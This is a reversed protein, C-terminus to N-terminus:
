GQAAGSPHRHLSGIYRDRVGRIEHDHLDKSAASLVELINPRQQRAAADIHLFGSVQETLEM